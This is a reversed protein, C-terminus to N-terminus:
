INNFCHQSQKHSNGVPTTGAPSLNSQAFTGTPTASLPLSTHTHTHVFYHFWILHVVHKLSFVKLNSRFVVPPNFGTQLGM